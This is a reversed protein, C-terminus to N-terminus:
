LFMCRKRKKWSTTLTVAKSSTSPPETMPVSSGSVTVWISQTLRMMSVKAASASAESGGDRSTIFSLGRLCVSKMIVLPMALPITKMPTAKKATSNANRICQLWLEPLRCTCSSDSKKVVNTMSWNQFRNLALANPELWEAKWAKVWSLPSSSTSSIISPPWHIITVKPPLINRVSGRDSVSHAVIMAEVDSTRQIPSIHRATFRRLHLCYLVYYEIEATDEDIGPVLGGPVIGQNLKELVGDIQDIGAQLQAQGQVAAIYQANLEDEDAILQLAKYADSNEIEAIAADFQAIAERLLQIQVSNDSLLDDLSAIEADLMAIRVNLADIERQAAEIRSTVDGGAIADLAEQKDNRQAALEGRDAELQAVKEEVEAVSANLEELQAEAVALEAQLEELTKDEALASGFLNLSDLRAVQADASATPAAASATGAASGADSTASLGATPTVAYAAAATSPM